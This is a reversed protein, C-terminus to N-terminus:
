NPIEYWIKNERILLGLNRKVENFFFGRLVIRSEYVSAEKKTM